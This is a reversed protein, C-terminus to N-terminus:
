DREVQRSGREANAPNETNEGRTRSYIIWGSESRTVGPADIGERLPYPWIEVLAAATCYIRCDWAENKKAIGHKVEWQVSVAGKNSRKKTQVENAFEKFWNETYGRAQKDDPWVNSKQAGEPIRGDRLVWEYVADKIMNSEIWVTCPWQKKMKTPQKMGLALDVPHEGIERSKSRAPLVRVGYPTRTRAQTIREDDEAKSTCYSKVIEPRYGQDILVRSPGMVTDPYHPHRWVTKNIMKDYEHWLEPDDISDEASGGIIKYMLGWCIPQMTKYDIGWAVYETYIAHAGTDSAATILLARPDLQGQDEKGRAGLSFTNSQLKRASLGRSEATWVEALRENHFQQYGDWEGEQVAAKHADAGETVIAEITTWLHAPGPIHYSQNKSDPNEHIYQGSRIAEQRESESWRAECSTCVLAAVDEPGDGWRSIWFGDEDRKFNVNGWRVSVFENCRPCKGHWRGRSGREWERYISGPVDETPTSVYVGLADSGYTITRSRQTTVMTPDGMKDLEDIVVVRATHSSKGTKMEPSLGLILGGGAFRLAQVSDRKKLFKSEITQIQSTELAYLAPRIRESFFERLLIQDPEYFLVDDGYTAVWSAVNIVFESKLLQAPSMITIQEVDRRSVTAMPEMAMPANFHRWPGKMPGKVVIRHKAAWDLLDLKHVSVKAFANAGREWLDEIGPQHDFIDKQYEAM